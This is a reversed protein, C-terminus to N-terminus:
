RTLLSIIILSLNGASHLSIAVGPNYAGDSIPHGIFGIVALATGIVLLLFLL